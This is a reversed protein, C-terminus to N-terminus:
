FPPEDGPLPQQAQIDPVEPIPKTGPPDYGAEYLKAGRGGSVRPKDDGTYRLTLYGGPRIGPIGKGPPRKFNIDQVADRIADQMGRSCYLTKAGESDKVTLVMEMKPRGDPWYDLENTGYKRVQQSGVTLVRGSIMDGPNTFKAAPPRGMLIQDVAVYQEDEDDGPLM